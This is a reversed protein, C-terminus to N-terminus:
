GSSWGMVVVFRQVFSIFALFALLWLLPYSLSPAFVYLVLVALIGLVRLPRPLVCPVQPTDLPLVKRHVGYAMVFSTMFSGFAMLILSPLVWGSELLFAGLILFEVLRDMVGDLFAGKPTTGGTGRAVAGDVADALFSLIIFVLSPLYQSTYIFYAGVLALILSLYTILNPDVPLYFSPKNM